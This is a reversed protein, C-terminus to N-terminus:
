WIKKQAQFKFIFCAITEYHCIIQIIITSKTVSRELHIKLYIIFLHLYTYAYIYRSNNFGSKNQFVPKTRISKTRFFQNQESFFIKNQFVPKTYFHLIWYANERNYPSHIGIQNDILLCIMTNMAPSIPKKGFWIFSLSM